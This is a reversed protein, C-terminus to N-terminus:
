PAVPRAGAPLRALIDRVRDVLEDDLPVSAFRVELLANLHRSLAQRKPIDEAAPLMTLWDRAMWEALVAADLPERGGLMFYARLAQTLYDRRAGGSRLQEELRLVLRSLFQSRLAQRYLSFAEAGLRAGQWLGGSLAPAAATGRREEWAGPIARLADLAPLLAPFDADDVRALSRPATDLAKWYGSAQTVAADIREVLSESRSAGVIWLVVVLAAAALAGGAALNRNLRRGAELEQDLGVLNAEAFVVERMLRELFIGQSPGEAPEAPPVPPGVDLLNVPVGGRAGSTLYIGRLLPRGGTDDPAFAGDLMDGLREGLAEVQAPFAFALSRRNIDPEHHLREALRRELRAMLGGFADAVADGPVGGGDLGPAIGSGALPGSMAFTSGWVQTRAAADLTEFFVPFGALLDIKTVLVYVPVRVGLHADLEALRRRIAQAHDRRELDSWRALDSTSVTLLVGNLPQRPRRAKVLDLLGTWARADVAARSDQTVYRGATDILVAEETFWWDCQRTGGLGTFAPPEGGGGPLAAIGSAALATTKGSGPAGIVLYWPLQYLYRGGRRGSFRDAKLRALADALRDRLVDLEESAAAVDADRLDAPFDDRGHGGGAGSFAGSFAGSLARALVPPLWRAWTATRNGKGERGASTRSPPVLFRTFADDAARHRAASRRWAVAWVALVVVVLVLRPVAEELPRFGGLSVLPGLLWVLAAVAGAGALLV